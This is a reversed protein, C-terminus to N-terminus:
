GGFTRGSAPDMMKWGLMRCVRLLVPFAMDEENLSVVVQTVPDDPGVMPMQVTIGPGFLVGASEPSRSGDPATNFQELLRVVQKYSGLSVMNLVAAGADAEDEDNKLLKVLLISRASRAM